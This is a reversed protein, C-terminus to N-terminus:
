KCANLLLQRYFRITNKYAETNIKEDTGHIGGVQSREVKVPNFRYINKSVPIYHRADTTAVVLSPAVVAQPFVERVTTQLVSYGFQDMGSIPPPENAHGNTSLTVEVREDVVSKIYNLTSEVSEGPLIRSNVQATAKEPIVNEKFGSHLITPALTTRLMANTAGSQSMQNIILGETWGLNAFIVKNFLNMEPGIHEFMDKTPSAIKAPSPYDRLRIVSESLINIASEYGPMSSHGGSEVNATLDFTAYGKESLGILAVPPECGPLVNEVVLGGEDLVFEFEINRRKFIAAMAIAGKEGGVEEDHGFALYVTRQPTYDVALLSEIAELIGLVALKDDLTGRGWLYGDKVEGAFPAVSWDKGENEVGVVDMHGMLLIPALRANQGPWKYIYSFENVRERELLSDALPYNEVLFTDLLRFAATDIQEEDSLTQIRIAAALREVAADEVNVPEVPDVKIQRSTFTMTNYTFVMAMIFIVLLFLRFLLRRLKKM